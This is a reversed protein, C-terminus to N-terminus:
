FSCPPSLSCDQLKKCRVCFILETIVPIRGLVLVCHSNALSEVDTLSAPSATIMAKPNVTQSWFGLNTEWSDRICVQPMLTGCVGMVDICCRDIIYCKSDNIITWFVPTFHRSFHLMWIYAYKVYKYITRLICGTEFYVLRQVSICVPPSNTTNLHNLCNAHSSGFQSCLCKRDHACM